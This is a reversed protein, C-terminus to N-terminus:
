SLSGIARLLSPNSDGDSESSGGTKPTPESDENGVGSSSENGNPTPSSALPRKEEEDVDETAITISGVEADMIEDPNVIKGARQLVIVTFAVVLDYDGAAFADQLEAGRVGSIEKITHLERGTFAAVDLDYEGDYQNIGDIKLKAM